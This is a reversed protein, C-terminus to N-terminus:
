PFHTETLPHFFDINYRSTCNLTTLLHSWGSISKEWGNEYLVFLYRSLAGLKFHIDTLGTVKM